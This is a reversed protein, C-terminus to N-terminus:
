RPRDRELRDRQIQRRVFWPRPRLTVRTEAWVFRTLLRPPPPTSLVGELLFSEYYGQMQM